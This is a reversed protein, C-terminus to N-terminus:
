LNEKSVKWGDVELYTGRDIVGSASESAKTDTNKMIVDVQTSIVANLEDIKTHPATKPVTQDSEPLKLFSERTESSANTSPTPTM